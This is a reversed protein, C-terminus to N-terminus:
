LAFRAALADLVHLIIPCVAAGPILDELTWRFDPTFVPYLRCSEPRYPYITCLRDALFPCPQGRLKGWEGVLAASERDVHAALAQEVDCGLGTALRSADEPTLYVDLARCCRACQTCDTAAVIPAAIAEVLADLDADAIDDAFELTYRLLDFTDRRAAALRELNNLANLASDDSAASM